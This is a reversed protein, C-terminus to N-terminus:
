VVLPWLRGPTRVAHAALYLIPPEIIPNVCEIARLVCEISAVPARACAPSCYHAVLTDLDIDFMTAHAARWSRAAHARICPNKKEPFSIRTRMAFLTARTSYLDMRFSIRPNVSALPLRTKNSSSGSWLFHPCPCTM